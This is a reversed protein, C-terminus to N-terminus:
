QENPAPWENPSSSPGENVHVQRVIQVLDTKSKAGLKRSASQIARSITASSLGLAYSIYKGSHGLAVYSAVQRERETLARPDPVRPDNRRAVIFRRGDSDFHNSWRFADPCSAKGCYCRKWRNNRLKGRARDIRKVAERLAERVTNDQASLGADVCRGSSELVAAADDFVTGEPSLNRRLRLAAAVHVMVAEWRANSDDPVTRVEPLPIGLICGVGSPDAVKIAAFDHIGMSRPVDWPRLSGISTGIDAISESFTQHSDRLDM